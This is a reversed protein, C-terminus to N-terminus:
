HVSRGGDVKIVSLGKAEFVDREGVFNPEYRKFKERLGEIVSEAPEGTADICTCDLGKGKILYVRMLSM